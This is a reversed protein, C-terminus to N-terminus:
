RPKNLVCHKLPKLIIRWHESHVESNRNDAVNGVFTKHKGQEYQTLNCAHLVGTTKKKKM